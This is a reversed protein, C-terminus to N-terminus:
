DEAEDREQAMAECLEIVPTPASWEPLTIEISGTLAPRKVDPITLKLEFAHETPKPHPFSKVIRAEGSQHVILYCTTKM